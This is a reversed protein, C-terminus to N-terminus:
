LGIKPLPGARFEADIVGKDSMQKLLAIMDAYSVNLGRTERDTEVIPEECLKEILEDLRFSSKLPIVVDPRKPHKYLISVYQQGAPADITISGDASQVFINDRCYIPADFLVIRPQGRRSVYITKDKMLTVQELYFNRGILKRTVAIDDLKRLNEYAALRIDFNEDRLLKRSIATADNRNASLMIAELAEIRYLSNKDMAMERLTELGLDSGLNLMCRATRLRVEENHLNLLVALKSLSENGIAELAIESAQKDRSFALRDVFTEIRERTIGRTEALYIAGVISIFRHKQGAYEAPMSLEVQNHSVAKATKDGFRENLRNRIASAIKYDPQRLSIYIKYEDLVTGGALIYGSRKDTKLSDIKDIYVPGEADALARLGGMRGKAKLECHYLWGGELSTTQTRALAPVRVDFYQNNSAAAPMAGEVVVVATDNSSILKDINMKHEPLQKKIYQELYKRIRPPCQSSGTGQLGGVLGYGEVGITDFAFVEALSGITTGIDITTEAATPWQEAGRPEDCGAMFLFVVLVSTVFVFKRQYTKMLDTAGFFM